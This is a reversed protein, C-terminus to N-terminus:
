RQIPTGDATMSLKWDNYVAAVDGGGNVVKFVGMEIKPKLAFLQGFYERIAAHGTLVGADLTVLTGAREYLAVIGETDGANFYEGFLRDVDEPTQAPMATRREPAGRRRAEGAAVKM